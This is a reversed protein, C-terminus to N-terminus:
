RPKRANFFQPQATVRPPDLYDRQLQCALRHVLGPGHAQEPWSRLADEVATAFDARRDAPLPLALAAVIELEASTLSM